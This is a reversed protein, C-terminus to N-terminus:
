HVLILRGGAGSAEVWEKLIGVILKAPLGGKIAGGIAGVEAGMDYSALLILGPTDNIAGGLGAGPTYSALLIPGGAGNKGPVGIGFNAGNLAAESCYRLLPSPAPRRGATAESKGGKLGMM